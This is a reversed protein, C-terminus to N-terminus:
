GARKFRIVGQQQDATEVLWGTRLWANRPSNPGEHQLNTWWTKSKHASKPLAEGLIAEIETFTLTVQRTDAPHSRFWDELPLYKHFEPQKKM